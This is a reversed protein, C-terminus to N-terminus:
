PRKQRNAVLMSHKIGYGFLKFNMQQWVKLIAHICSPSSSQMTLCVRETSQKFDDIKLTTCSCISQGNVASTACTPLMGMLNGDWKADFKGRLVWKSVKYSTTDTQQCKVDSKVNWELEDRGWM